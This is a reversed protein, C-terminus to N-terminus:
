AQIIWTKALKKHCSWFGHYLQKFLRLRRTQSESLFSCLSSNSGFTLSKRSCSLVRLPQVSPQLMAAVVCHSCQSRNLPFHYMKIAFWDYQGERWSGDCHAGNWMRQMKMLPLALSAPAKAWFLLLWASKQTLYGMMIINNICEGWQVVSFPLSHLEACDLPSKLSCNMEVAKVSKIYISIKFYQFSNPNPITKYFCLIFYIGKLGVRDSAENNAECM